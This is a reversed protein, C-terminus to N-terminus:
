NPFRPQDWGAAVSRNSCPFRSVSYKDTQRLFGLMFPLFFCLASSPDFIGELNFSEAASLHRTSVLGKRPEEFRFSDNMQMSTFGALSWGVTQM